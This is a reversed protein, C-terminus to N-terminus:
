SLWAALLGRSVLCLCQASHCRWKCRTHLSPWPPPLYVAPMAQWDTVVHKCGTPGGCARNAAPPPSPPRAGPMSGHRRRPASLQLRLYAAFEKKTNTSTHHRCLQLRDMGVATSCRLEGLQANSSSGRFASSHDSLPGLPLTCRNCDPRRCCPMPNRLSLRPMACRTRSAAQWGVGGCAHEEMEGEAKRGQNGQVAPVGRLGM